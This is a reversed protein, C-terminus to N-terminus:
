PSKCDHILAPFPAQTSLRYDVSAIAFDQELLYQIPPNSKSGSRWAGGHIWVVLPPPPSCPKQTPLYLDLQLNIGDVCAYVLDSFDPKQSHVESLLVLLLSPILLYNPTWSNM